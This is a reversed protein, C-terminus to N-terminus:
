VSEAGVGLPADERNGNHMMGRGGPDGGPLSEDAVCVARGAQDPLVLGIQCRDAAPDWNRGEGLLGIQAAYRRVRISPLEIVVATTPCSGLVWRWLPGAAGRGAIRIQARLASRPDCIWGTGQM